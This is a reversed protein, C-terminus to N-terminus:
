SDHTLMPATIFMQGPRTDDDPRLDGMLGISWDDPRLDGTLDIIMSQPTPGGNQGHVKVYQHLVHYTVELCCVHCRFAFCRLVLQVSVQCPMTFMDYRLMFGLCSMYLWALFMYLGM